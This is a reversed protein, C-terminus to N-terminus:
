DVEQAPTGIWALLQAVSTEQSDPEQLAELTEQFWRLEQQLVHQHEADGFELTRLRHDRERELFRTWMRAAVDLPDADATEVALRYLLDADEPDASELAAALDRGSVLLAFLDGLHEDDFVDATLFPSISGPDHVALRLAAVEPGSLLRGGHTRPAPPVVRGRRGPVGGGAVSGAGM